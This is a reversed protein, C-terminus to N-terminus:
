PQLKLKFNIYLKSKLRKILYNCFLNGKCNLNSNRIITWSVPFGTFLFNVLIPGLIYKIEISGSFDLTKEPLPM